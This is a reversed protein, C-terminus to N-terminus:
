LAHLKIPLSLIVFFFLYFILARGRPLIIVYRIAPCRRTTISSGFHFQPPIPFNHETIPRFFHIMQLKCGHHSTLTFFHSYPPFRFVRIVIPSSCSVPLLVVRKATERQRQIKKITVFFDYFVYFLHNSSNPLNPYTIIIFTIKM